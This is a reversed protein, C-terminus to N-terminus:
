SHRKGEFSTAPVLSLIKRKPDYVMFMKPIASVEDIEMTEPSDVLGGQFCEPASQARGRFPKARQIQIWVENERDSLLRSGEASCGLENLDLIATHKANLPPCELGTAIIYPNQAQPNNSQYLQRPWDGRSTWLKVYKSDPM